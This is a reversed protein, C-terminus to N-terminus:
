EPHRGDQIQGIHGGCLSGLKAGALFQFTKAMDLGPGFITSTSWHSCNNSSAGQSFPMEGNISFAKIVAFHVIFISM